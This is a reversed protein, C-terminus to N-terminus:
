DGVIGGLIRGSKKPKATMSKPKQKLAGPKTVKYASMSKPKQKLAGKKPIRKAYMSRPM